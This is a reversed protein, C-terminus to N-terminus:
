LRAITILDIQLRSAVTRNLWGGARLLVPNLARARKATIAGSADTVVDVLNSYDSAPGPVDIFRYQGCNLEGASFQHDDEVVCVVDGPQSRLANLTPDTPHDNPAVRVCLRAM